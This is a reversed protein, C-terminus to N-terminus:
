NTFFILISLNHHCLCSNHYAYKGIYKGVDTLVSLLKERSRGAISWKVNETYKALEEVVFKGTFGSAGFVVIDYKRDESNM